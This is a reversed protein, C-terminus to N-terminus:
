KRNSQKRSFLGILTIILGILFIPIFLYIYIGAAGWYDTAVANAIIVPLVHALVFMTIIGWVIFKKRRSNKYSLVGIIIVFSIVIVTVVLSISSM